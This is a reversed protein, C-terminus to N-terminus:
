LQSIQDPLIKPIDEFVIFYEFNKLSAKMRVNSPELSIKANHNNIHEICLFSSLFKLIRVQGQSMEPRGVASLM